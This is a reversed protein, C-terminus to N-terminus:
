PFLGNQYQRLLENLVASFQPDKMMQVTMVYCAFLLLSGALGLISLVLGAIGYTSFRNNQRFLVSQVLGAMAAAFGLCVGSPFCCCSVLLSVVGLLLVTVEKKDAPRKPPEPVPERGYGGPPPMQRSENQFFQPGNPPFQPRNQPQRDPSPAPSPSTNGGTSDGPRASTGGNEQPSSAPDAEAIPEPDSMWNNEQM